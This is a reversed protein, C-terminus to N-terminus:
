PRPDYAWVYHLRWAGELNADPLFDGVGAPDPDDDDDCGVPIIALCAFMLMALMAKWFKVAM